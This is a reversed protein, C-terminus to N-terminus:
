ATLGAIIQTPTEADDADAPSDIPMLTRDDFAIFLCVGGRHCKRPPGDFAWMGDLPAALTQTVRIVTRGILARDCPDNTMSRVVMALQGPACNM